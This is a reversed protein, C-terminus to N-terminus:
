IEELSLQVKAFVSNDDTITFEKYVGLLLLSEFFYHQDKDDLGSWVMPTANGLARLERLKDVNSVPTVISQRSAPVTRRPVLTANGFADRTVTSYNQAESSAQHEVEGLYVSRGVVMAGCRAAGDVPEVAISVAAGVYPPLDFKVLSGGWVFSGFFYDSWAGTTRRLLSAASTYVTAAGVTMTITVVAGVLGMLAISDVRQGPTITVVLNSTSSTASNRLTDFMAWRQTPGVDLWNIPDSEPGTATTGAVLRQYVRHTTTRIAQQGVTYAAGANWATEGAAPEAVSSSTLMADTVTLPPICRM